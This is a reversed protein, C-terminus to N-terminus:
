AAVGTDFIRSDTPLYSVWLRNQFVYADGFAVGAPPNLGVRMNKQKGLVYGWNQRDGAVAEAVTIGIESVPRLDGQLKDNFDLRGQFGLTVLSSVTSGGGNIIQYHIAFSGATTGCPNRTICGTGSGTTGIGGDAIHMLPFPNILTGLYTYAGCKWFGNAAGNFAVAFGDDYVILWWKTSTGSPAWGFWKPGNTTSALVATGLVYTGSSRGTNDYNISSSGHAPYKSATHTGSDYGECIFGRLAGDGLTRGIVVYFDSPLGSQSALCKLVYWRVLGSAPTFEEVLEWALHAIIDDRIKEVMALGVSGADPQNITGTTFNTAM